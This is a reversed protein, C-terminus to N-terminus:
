DLFSEEGALVGGNGSMLVVCGGDREGGSEMEDGDGDGGCGGNGKRMGDGDGCGYLGCGLDVGGDSEAGDEGHIGDGNEGRQTEDNLENLRGNRRRRENGPLTESKREGQDPIQEAYNERIEGGDLDDLPADDYTGGRTGARTGGGDDGVHLHGHSEGGEGGCLIGGDCTVDCADVGSQPADDRGDGGPIQAGGVLTM